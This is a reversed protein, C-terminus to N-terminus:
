GGDLKGIRQHTSDVWSDAREAKALELWERNTRGPAEKFHKEYYETLLDREEDSLDRLFDIDDQEEKTTFPPTTDRLWQPLPPLPVHQNKLHHATDSCYQLVGDTLFYHCTKDPTGRNILMSPSFSPKEVNGNFSWNKGPVGSNVAYIHLSNCGPCWHMLDGEGNDRLYKSLIKGM